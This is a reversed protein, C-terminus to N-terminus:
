MELLLTLSELDKSALSLSHFTIVLLSYSFLLNLLHTIFSMTQLQQNTFSKFDVFTYLCVSYMINKGTELQELAIAIFVM